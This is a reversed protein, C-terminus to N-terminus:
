GLDGLLKLFHGEGHDIAIPEDHYVALWSPTVRRHRERLEQNTPM